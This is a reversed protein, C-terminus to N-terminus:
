RMVRYGADGQDAATRLWLGTFDREGMVAHQKEIFQGFEVALGELYQSLRQFGPQNM